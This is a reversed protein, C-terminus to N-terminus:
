DQDDEGDHDDAGEDADGDGGPGWFYPTGHTVGTRIAKLTRISVNTPRLASDELVMHFFPRVGPLESLRKFLLPYGVGQPSRLVAASEAWRQRQM